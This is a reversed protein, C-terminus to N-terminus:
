QYRCLSTFVVVLLCGAHEHKSLRRVEAATGVDVPPIGGKSALLKSFRRYFETYRVRM